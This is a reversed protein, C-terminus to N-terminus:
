RDACLILPSATPTPVKSMCTCRSRDLSLGAAPPAPTAPRIPLRPPLPVGTMPALGLATIRDQRSSPSRTALATLPAPLRM